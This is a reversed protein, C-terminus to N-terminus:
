VAETVLFAGFDRLAERRIRAIMHTGNETYSEELVDGEEHARAVLDGRDFPINLEVEVQLLSLEADIREM